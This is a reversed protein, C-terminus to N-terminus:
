EQKKKSKVFIFEKNVITKYKIWQCVVSPKVNYYESIRRSNQWKKIIKGNIDKQLISINKDAKIAQPIETEKLNSFTILDESTAYRWKYKKYTKQGYNGLCCGRIHSCLYDKEIQAQYASSWLKIPNGKLDCQLVPYSQNNEWGIRQGKKAKSINRGIEKIRPAKTAIMKRAIDNKEEKSLKALRNKMTFSRHQRLDETYNVCHGNIVNLGNKGDAKKACNAGIWIDEVHRLIDEPINEQVIKFRFEKHINYLEQLTSNIHTGRRLNWIHNAKRGKLDLTSGFLYYDGIRIRYIAGFRM